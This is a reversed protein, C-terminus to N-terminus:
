SGREFCDEGCCVNFCKLASCCVAVCQLESFEVKINMISDDLVGKPVYEGCCVTLCHLVTCCVSRLKRTCSETLSFRKRSSGRRLVNCFVVVCQLM